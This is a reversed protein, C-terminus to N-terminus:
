ALDVEFWVRNMRNRAVGWRDAIRDVLFLGWGGPRTMEDDRPTPDFGAGPDAVEVRVRPGRISVDLGVKGATTADAHRIANTVLESVLLLIDDLMGGDLRQELAELAERATCAAMPGRELRVSVESGPGHGHGAVVG